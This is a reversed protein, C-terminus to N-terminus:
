ANFSSTWRAEGVAVILEAANIIRRVLDKVFDGKIRRYFGSDAWQKRLAALTLFRHSNSWLVMVTGLAAGVAEQDRIPVADAFRALKFLRGVEHRADFEPDIMHRYARLMCEVALGSVYTALVYHGNDYLEQGVTVHEGAADRYIKARAKQEATAM